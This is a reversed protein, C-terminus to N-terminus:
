HAASVTDIRPPQARYIMSKAAIVIVSMVSFILGCVIVGAM